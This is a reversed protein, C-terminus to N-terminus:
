RHTGDGPSLQASWVRAESTVQGVTLAAVGRRAFADQGGCGKGARHDAREAAASRLVQPEAEGLQRM